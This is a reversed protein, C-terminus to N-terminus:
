HKAAFAVVGQEMMVHGVQVLEAAQAKPALGDRIMEQHAHRLNQHLLNLLEDLRRTADERGTFNPMPVRRAIHRLIHMALALLGEDSLIEDLETTETKM